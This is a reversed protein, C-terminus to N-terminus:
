FHAGHCASKLSFLPLGSLDLSHQRNPVQVQHTGSVKGTALQDLVEDLGISYRSEELNSLRARLRDNDMVLWMVQTSLDGLRAFLGRRTNSIESRLEAIERRLLEIESTDFIDLQVSM